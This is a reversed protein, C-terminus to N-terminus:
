SGNASSDIKAACKVSLNSRCKVPKFQNTASSDLVYPSMVANFFSPVILSSPPSFSSLSSPLPSTEM